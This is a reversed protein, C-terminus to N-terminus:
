WIDTYNKYIQTHIITQAIYTEPDMADQLQPMLSNPSIFYIILDEDGAPDNKETNSM